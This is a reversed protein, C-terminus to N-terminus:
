GKRVRGPGGSTGSGGLGGAGCVTVAKKNGVGGRGVKLLPHLHGGNPPLGLANFNYDKFEQSRWTGRNSCLTPIPTTNKEVATCPLAVGWLTRWLVSGQQVRQSQAVHGWLHPVPRRSDRQASQNITKAVGAEIASAPARLQAGHGLSVSGCPVDHQCWGAVAHGVAWVAASGYLTSSSM